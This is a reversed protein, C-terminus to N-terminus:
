EPISKREKDDDNELLTRQWAQRSVIVQAVTFPSANVYAKFWPEEAHVLLQSAYVIRKHRLMLYRMMELVLSYDLQAQHGLAAITMRTNRHLQSDVLVAALLCVRRKQAENLTQFDM